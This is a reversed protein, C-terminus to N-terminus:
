WRVTMAVSKQSENGKADLATIEYTYSVGQSISSDTYKSSTTENLRVGNRYIRYKAVGVNDTAATWSMATRYQTKKGVKYSELTAKFNQPVSPPTVDGLYPNGVSLTAAGADVFLPVNSAAFLTTGVQPDIIKFSKVQLASGTTADSVTLYYKETSLDSVLASIDFYFTGEKEVTTGDFAFDGGINSFAFPKWTTNPTTQMNSSSGLQVAVQNRRAHSLTVEVLAKSVAPAYSAFFVTSTQTVPLRGTVNWGPVTTTTRFADYSAWSYGQNGWYVGWSNAVKFAGLESPEVLGNGNIDTWINDDYGVITMAHGGLKGNLHTVIKQGVFPNSIASPNAKVTNFVWSNIYTGMMLVHGNMLVQKVNAIAADTNIAVSVFPSLRAGLAEKWLASNLSWARFDADVPFEANLPAGHKELVSFADSFSAGDDVGGNILNYTWKPSLVKQQASKNDCGLTLCLEHSALYYTSAFAVCSAQPGQNVIVPFSPLASNDLQAPIDLTGLSSVETINAAAGSTEADVEPLFTEKKIPVLGHKKREHNVRSAGLANLRIRKLKRKELSVQEEPSIPKLGTKM